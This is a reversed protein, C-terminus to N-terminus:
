APAAEAKPTVDVPESKKDSAQAVPILPLKKAKRDGAYILGGSLAAAGLIQAPMATVLLATGAVGTGAAVLVGATTLFNKDLLGDSGAALGSDNAEETLIANTGFDFEMPDILHLVFLFFPGSLTRLRLCGLGVRPDSATGM